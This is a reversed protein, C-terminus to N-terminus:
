RFTCRAGLVCPLGDWGIPPEYKTVFQVVVTKSRVPADYLPGSSFAGARGGGWRICLCCM